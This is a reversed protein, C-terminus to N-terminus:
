VISVIYVESMYVTYVTDLKVCYVSYVSAGNKLIEKFICQLCLICHLCLTCKLCICLTYQRILCLICLICLICKSREKCKGQIYVIYVKSMCGTYTTLELM